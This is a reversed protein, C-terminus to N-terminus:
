MISASLEDHWSAALEPTWEPDVEGAVDLFVRLWIAYLDHDIRLGSPGHMRALRRMAMEGLASGRRHALLMSIGHELLERQRALDTGAFLRPVRRDAAFLQEYFRDAFRRERLRRFSHLTADM